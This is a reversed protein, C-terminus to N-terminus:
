VVLLPLALRPMLLPSNIRDGYLSRRRLSGELFVVEGFVGAVVLGYGLLVVVVM